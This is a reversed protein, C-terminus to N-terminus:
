LDRATHRVTLILVDGGVRYFIVYPYNTVVLRRVGETNTARGHYPWEELVRISRRIFSGVVWAARPNDKAIHQRIAELDDIARPSYRVRM